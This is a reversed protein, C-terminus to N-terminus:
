AGKEPGDSLNEYSKTISPGSFPFHLLIIDIESIFQFKANIDKLAKGLWLGSELNITLTTALNGLIRVKM